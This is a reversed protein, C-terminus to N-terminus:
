YGSQQPIPRVDQLRQVSPQWVQPKPQQWSQQPVPQPWQQPLQQQGGYSQQKPFEMPQQNVFQQKNQLDIPQQNVFQQKQLDIPQQNVFQQQKQLDIPQQNVFQQQKQFEMPQQQQTQIDLQSTPQQVPLSSGYGQVTNPIVRPLIKPTEMLPVQPQQTYQQGYTTPFSTRQPLVKQQEALTLTVVGQMDPWVCAKNLNDWITGGPCSEVSMREGDCMIFGKDTNALSQPEDVDRCPSPHVQQANLGYALGDQHICIYSLAAGFRFSQCRTGPTQGCPQQTQCVRADLECITGDFGAPCECRWSSVDTQVCKGGNLCPQSNCVNELPGLKRECRRSEPHYHLGKPCHQEFGKGDELCVVFRRGNDLPLVTEPAQGRCLVDAETIIQAQQNKALLEQQQQLLLQQPTLIVRDVPQIMHSIRQQGLFEPKQQIPFGSGYTSPLPLDQRITQTMPLSSQQGYGTQVPLTLPKQQITLDRMGPQQFPMSSVPASSYGYTSRAFASSSLALLCCLLSFM